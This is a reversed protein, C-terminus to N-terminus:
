PTPLAIFNVEEVNENVNVVQSNFQYRKNTVSLVVSQGAEIEDFSYYGFAGTIFTRTQGNTDTMTVLANRLGNGNPTLIRGNISVNAANPPLVVLRFDTDNTNGGSVARLTFNFTGAMTPTGAITVAANPVISVDEINKTFLPTCIPIGTIGPPLTGAQLCYFASGAEPIITQTYSVSTRGDPLGARFTGGNTTNNVEFAGIDTTGIRAAGRQDAPLAVPPNNTACSLDTVCNQGANLAPSITLPPYSLGNGGYFGLPALLPNVNQLDSAIWGAAMGVNGIINNGESNFAGSADPSAAVGNNNAIITNRVVGLNANSKHIGGGNLTSTNGVITSNTISLATGNFFIAGGSGVGANNGSFTTNTINVTGNAQIGGGGAGSSNCTNNYISSNRINLTNGSFNQMAGGSGTSSNSFIACGVINLTATGANNAGGGNTTANGNIVLNDLTLTGGSNYVGGGRGTSVTSVGTGGTVRLNSITAVSGTNNTFVRSVNNGSVTLKNNGPGVISLTGNNTIIIDTGGLTITQAINFLAAFVIMDSDVTGNAAVVAERLSCDSDCTGDNTDAIKTVTYTAGFVVQSLGIALVMCFAIKGFKIM